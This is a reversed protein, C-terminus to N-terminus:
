EMLILDFQRERSLAVAVAGNDAQTVAVRRWGPVAVRELLRAALKRNM